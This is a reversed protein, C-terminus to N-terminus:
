LHIVDITWTGPRGREMRQESLKSHLQHVLRKEETLRKEESLSQLLGGSWDFVHRAAYHRTGHM